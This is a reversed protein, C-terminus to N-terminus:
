EIATRALEEAAVAFTSEPDVGKFRCAQRRAEPWASDVRNMRRFYAITAALELQRLDAAFLRKALPEHQELRNRLEQWDSREEVGNLQRKGEETLEYGFQRGLANESEHEILLDRAVMDDTLRAVDPSYPGFRHLFFDAELPCGAEQLLYVVKQLRKRTELTGAWDVLKALHYRKM